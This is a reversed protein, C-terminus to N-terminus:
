LVERVKSPVQPAFGDRVSLKIAEGKAEALKVFIWKSGRVIWFEKLKTFPRVIGRVEQPPMGFQCRLFADWSKFAQKKKDLAQFLDESIRIVRGPKM